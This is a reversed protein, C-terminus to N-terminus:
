HLNRLNMPLSPKKNSSSGRSSGQSSRSSGHSSLSSSSFPIVSVNSKNSHRSRSSYQKMDQLVDRLQHLVKFGRSSSRKNSNLIDIIKSHIIAIDDDTIVDRKIHSSIVDSIKTNTLSNQDLKNKKLLEMVHEIIKDSLTPTAEVIANDIYEQFEIMDDLTEKEESKRLQSMDNLTKDWTDKILKLIEIQKTKPKSKLGELMPSIHNKFKIFAFYPMIKVLSYKVQMISHQLNLLLGLSSNIYDYIVILNDFKNDHNKLVNKNLNYKFKKFEKIQEIYKEFENSLEKLYNTQKTNLTGGDFLRSKDLIYQTKKFIGVAKQELMERLEELFAKYTDIKKVFESLYNSFKRMDKDVFQDDSVSDNNLEKQLAELKVTHTQISEHIKRQKKSLSALYDSNSIIEKYSSLVNTYSDKIQKHHKEIDNQILEHLDYLTIKM